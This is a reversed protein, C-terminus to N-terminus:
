HSNYQKLYEQINEKQKQKKIMRDIKNDLNKLRNKARRFDGRSQKYINYIDLYSIINENNNLTHLIDNVVMKIQKLDSNEKLVIHKSQVKNDIQNLVTDFYNKNPKNLDMIPFMIWITLSIPLVISNMFLLLIKQQIDMQNDPIIEGLTYGVFFSTFIIFLSIVYKWFPMNYFFVKAVEYKLKSQDYDQQYQKSLDNIKKQEM